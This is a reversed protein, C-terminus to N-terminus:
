EARETGSKERLRDLFSKNNRELQVEDGGENLPSRAQDTQKQQRVPLTPGGLGNNGFSDLEDASEVALDIRDTFIASRGDARYGNAFMMVGDRSPFFVLAYVAGPRDLTQPYGSIQSRSLQGTTEMLPVECDSDPMVKNLEGLIADSLNVFSQAAVLAEKVGERDALYLRCGDDLMGSDMAKGVLFKALHSIESAELLTPRDSAYLPTSVVSFISLSCFLAFLNASILRHTIDALKNKAFTTLPWIKTM